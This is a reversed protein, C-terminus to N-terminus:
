PAAAGIAAAGTLAPWCPLSAAPCAGGTPAVAAVTADIEADIEADIAGATGDAGADDSPPPPVACAGFANCIKGTPCDTNRSCLDPMCGGLGGLGGLAGLAGLAALAATVLAAATHSSSAM